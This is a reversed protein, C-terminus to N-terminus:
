AAMHSCFFDLAYHVLYKLASGPQCLTLSGAAMPGMKSIYFPTTCVSEGSVKASVTRMM